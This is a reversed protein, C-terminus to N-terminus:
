KIEQATGVTVSTPTNIIIHGALFWYSSPL